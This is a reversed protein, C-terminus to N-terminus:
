QLHLTLMMLMAIGCLTHVINEDDDVDGDHNDGCQLGVSHTRCGESSSPPHSQCQSRLFGCPLLMMTMMMAMMMIIMVMMTIMMMKDAFHFSYENIM